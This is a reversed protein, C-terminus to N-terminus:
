LARPLTVLFRTGGDGPFEAEIRGGHLHTIQRSLYLGVGLGSTYSEAHAQQFRDFLYARKEPPIGLGHDRVALRVEDPSPCSINVEIEGGEPSFRIANDLLNTLLREFLQPDVQAALEEPGSITISHNNARARMSAVTASVERALDVPRPKISLEGTDIRAVDFLNNVLRALRASQEDITSLNRRLDPLDVEGTKAMRHSLLQAFGVLSTIPTKLEHAAIALFDDRLRMASEAQKRARQEEEYLGARELALASQQALARMLRRDDESFGRAEPFGLTIVGITRNGSTLPVAAWARDTPSPYAAVLQPYRIQRESESALYIAENMRVADAAPIDADLPIRRFADVVNEAYGVSHRIELEDSDDVKCLLAGANATLAATGQEVVIKAIDKVSVAQSLAATVSQLRSTQEAAHEAALRAAQESEYLNANDLALAVRRALEEALALDDERYRRYSTSTAIVMLGIVEGRTVLPVIMASRPALVRLVDGYDAGPIASSRAIQRSANVAVAEIIDDDVEAILESKGEWISNSGPGNSDQSLVFDRLSAVLSEQMPDHHASALRRLAGREIGYVITWDGLFPVIRRSVQSLMEAPDLSSVLTQGVNALFIQVAGARKRDSIDEVVAIFYNPEGNEKRVLSGTLNVWVHSGNGHLYRKEMSYHSIGGALLRQTYALDADLDEPHTIEQFNRELLEELSLGVIESLRRNVRLWRGDLGVHAVGVAAQEFTARFRQESEALASAALRAEMAREDSQQRGSALRFAFYNVAALTTVAIPWVTIPRDEFYASIGYAGIAAAAFFYLQRPRFLLAAVLVPLVYLSSIVERRPLVLWNIAFALVFLVGILVYKSVDSARGPSTLKQVSDV